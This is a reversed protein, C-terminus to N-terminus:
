ITSSKDQDCTTPHDTSYYIAKAKEMLRSFPFLMEFEESVEM